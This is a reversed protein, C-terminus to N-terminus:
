CPERLEVIVSRGQAITQAQGLSLTFWMEGGQPDYYSFCFAEEESEFGGCYHASQFEDSSEYLAWDNVSRRLASIAQCHRVLEDVGALHDSSIAM